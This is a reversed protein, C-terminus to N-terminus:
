LRKILAEKESRKLMKIAREARLADNRSRCKKSYVLTVPSRGRLYRAGKGSNHLAIRQELDGTSGTYYTGYRCRVMYVFFSGKRNNNKKM